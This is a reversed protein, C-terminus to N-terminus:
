ELLEFVRIEMQVGIDEARVDPSDESPQPSSQEPQVKITDFFVITQAHEIAAIFRTVADFGGTAHMEFSYGLFKRNVITEERPVGAILEMVVGHEDAIEELEEIFALVNDRQILRSNIDAVSAQIREFEDALSKLYDRQESISELFQQRQGLASSDARITGVFVRGALYLAVLILVLLGSWLILQLKPGRQKKM